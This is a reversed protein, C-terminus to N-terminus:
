KGKIEKEASIIPCMSYTGFPKFIETNCFVSIRKKCEDYGYMKITVTKATRAVIAAKFICDYDGASRAYYTSGVEFKIM